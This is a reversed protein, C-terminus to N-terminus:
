IQLHHCRCRFNSRPVRWAACMHSWVPADHACRSRSQGMMAIAHCRLNRKVSVMTCPRINAYRPLANSLGLLGVAPPAAGCPSAECHKAHNAELSRAGLVDRVTQRSNTYPCMITGQGSKEKHHGTRDRRIRRTCFVVVATRLENASNLHIAKHQNDLQHEVALFNGACRPPRRGRQERSAAAFM